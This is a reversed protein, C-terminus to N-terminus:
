LLRWRITLFRHLIIFFLAVLIFYNTLDKNVVSAEVALDLDVKQPNIKGGTTQAITEMVVLDPTKAAGEEFRQAAIEFVREGVSKGSASILTFAYSGASAKPYSAEYRGPAIQIFDLESSKLDPSVLKATFNDALKKAFVALELKLLDGSLKPTLTYGVEFGSDGGEVWGTFLLAWFDYFREWAQWNSNWRGAADSTFAISKGKGIAMSALVPLDNKLDNTVLHLQADKRVRTEVLGRLEPYPALDAFLDAFETPKVPLRVNEKQTREGVAVKLDQLFLRPLAEASSVQYFVGGARDAMEKLLGSYDGGILFTSLTVGQSTFRRIMQLYLERMAYEDPLRGDTLVIVHKRGALVRSLEQNAIDLAPLLQTNGRPFLLRIREKAKERVDQIRGMPLVVFPQQDFGVIGLYDDTKLSEAVSETALRAFEIKGADKMSGSKDLVLEVAVNLRKLEKKPDVLKVPLLDEIPTGQYGGLGFSQNGGIMLLQGGDQLYSRMNKVVDAPLQEFSCNNLIVHSYLSLPKLQSEGRDLYAIDFSKNASRLVRSFIVGEEYNGSLVLLRDSKSVAIYSINKDVVENTRTNVLEFKLQEVDELLEESNFPVVTLGSDAIKVESIQKENQTYRLIFEDPSSTSISVSARVPFKQGRMGTQPIVISAIHSRDVPVTKLVFPFITSRSEETLLWSEVSGKTQNGDSLLLIQGPNLESAASLAEEINSGDAESFEDCLANADREITATSVEVVSGPKSAFPLVRVLSRELLLSAVSKLAANRSEANISKSCDLLVVAPQSNRNERWFPRSLATLLMLLTFLQLCVKFGRTLPSEAGRQKSWWLAVLPILLIPLGFLLYTWYAFGFSSIM